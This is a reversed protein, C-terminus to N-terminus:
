IEFIITHSAIQVCAIVRCMRQRLSSTYMITRLVDPIALESFLEKGGCFGQQANCYQRSYIFFSRNSIETRCYKSKDFRLLTQYKLSLSIKPFKSGRELEMYAAHLSVKSVPEVFSILGSHITDGSYGWQLM